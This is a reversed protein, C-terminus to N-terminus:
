PVEQLRLFLTDWNEVDFYTPLIMNTNTASFNSGYNTWNIMDNSVQLQYNTGTLLDSFAPKVAKLLTMKAGLYPQGNVETFGIGPQWGAGTEGLGNYSDSISYSWTAHDSDIIKYSGPALVINPHVDWWCPVNYLGIGYGLRTVAPWSGVVDGDVGGVVRRLGISGNIQEANVGSGNNWHYNTINTITTRNSINFVPNISPNNLTGDANISRFIQGAPAQCAFVLVGLAVLEQIKIKLSGGFVVKRLQTSPLPETRLKTPKM